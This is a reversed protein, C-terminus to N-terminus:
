GCGELICPYTLGLYGMLSSSVGMRIKTSSRPIWLVYLPCLAKGSNQISQCAVDFFVIRGAQSPICLTLRGLMQNRLLLLLLITNRGWWRRWWGHCKILFLLFRRSSCSYECLDVFTLTHRGPQALHVLGCWRGGTPRLHWLLLTWGCGVLRVLVHQFLRGLRCQFGIFPHNFVM